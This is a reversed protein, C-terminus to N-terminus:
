AELAVGTYVVPSGYSKNCLVVQSLVTFRSSAFRSSVNALIVLHDKLSSIAM